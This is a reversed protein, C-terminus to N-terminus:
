PAVNPRLKARPVLFASAAFMGGLAIAMWAINVGRKARNRQRVLEALDPPADHPM